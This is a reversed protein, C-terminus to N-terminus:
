FSFGSEPDFNIEFTIGNPYKGSIIPLTRASILANSAQRFAIAYRGKPILPVLPKIRGKIEGLENVQVEVKVVYKEFNSNGALIGKEWYKALKQTIADIMNREELASVTPVNEKVDDELLAILESYQDEENNKRLLEGANPRKVPKQVKEMITEDPSVTDSTAPRSMPPLSRVVGSAVIDVDKQGEPTIESSAEKPSELETIKDVELADDSATMAEVSSDLIKKSDSKESAVKAIRDATRPKPQAMKPKIFSNKENGKIELSSFSKKLDTRDTQNLKITQKSEINDLQKNKVTEYVTDDIKVELNSTSDTITPRESKEFVPLKETVRESNKLIPSSALINTPAESLKADFEEISIVSIEVPLPLEEMRKQFVSGLTVLFAILSFHGFMSITLSQRM